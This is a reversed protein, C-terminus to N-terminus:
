LNKLSDLFRPMSEEPYGKVDVLFRILRRSIEQTNALRTQLDIITAQYTEIYKILDQKTLTTKTKTKM